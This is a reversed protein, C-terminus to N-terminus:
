RAGTVLRERDFLRAAVRWGALDLILLLTTAGMVLGSSPHIVDLAVLVVVVVMPLSALMGVQQAVRVDSARTSVTIGVWISWTALLPTFAMQALVDPWQVLASSIGPQALLGVLALVIAFVAYSVVLSPGLAALAKGLLFEQPRVPTTLVPELTGQQREGAVAYAALVVPVLVPIGLMYLLVHGHALLGSADRGLRLVAVLPQISFVLPLVAMAMVVSRNRRYERLENRVVARVRRWGISM